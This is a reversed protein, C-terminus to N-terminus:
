EGLKAYFDARRSERDAAMSGALGSRAATSANNAHIAARLRLETTKEKGNLVQDLTQPTLDAAKMAACVDFRTSSPLAAIGGPFAAANSCYTVADPAVQAFAPAAFTAAVLLSTALLAKM